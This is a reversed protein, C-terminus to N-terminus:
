VMSSKEFLCAIQPVEEKEMERDKEDERREERRMEIKARM